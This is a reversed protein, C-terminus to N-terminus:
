CFFLCEFTVKESKFHWKLGSKWKTVQKADIQERKGDSEKNNRDFKRLGGNQPFTRFEKM